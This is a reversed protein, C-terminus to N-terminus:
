SLMSHDLIQDVFLKVFSNASRMGDPTYKIIVLSNLTSPLKGNFAKFALLYSKYKVIDRLKLINLMVFLESHTINRIVRKKYYIYFNFVQQIYTEWVECCYNIHPYVLSIDLIKLSNDDM